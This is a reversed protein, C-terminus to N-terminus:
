AGEQEQGASPGPTFAFANATGDGAIEIRVNHERCIEAVSEPPATDTVFIDIQSLHAIRVPASREFKMADAVLLTQRAHSLIERAVRVERFDYDFITGDADIASAGIVAYDVKFQRIFDVTAEGVIGGDSPRVQGGAIIVEVAPASRLINAVNINNTIAMIGDHQRLARAVQETTTGINLMISANDPILAAARKGILQKADSALQRRADYAYNAIGSPLVAGGHVRQLMGRECLENLDKRITQPTVDFESALGDVDVRGARRARDLIESQRPSVPDM